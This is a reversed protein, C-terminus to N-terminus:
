NLRIIKKTCFSQWKNEFIYDGTWAEKGQPIAESRSQRIGCPSIKGDENKVRVLEKKSEFDFDVAWCDIIL